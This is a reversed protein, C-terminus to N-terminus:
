LSLSKTHKSDKHYPKVDKLSHTMNNLQEQAKQELYNIEQNIHENEKLKLQHLKFHYENKAKNIVKLTDIKETLTQNELYNQFQNDNLFKKQSTLALSEILANLILHANEKLKLQIPNPAKEFSVESLISQNYTIAEHIQQIDITTKIEHVDKHENIKLEVSSLYNLLSEKDQFSMDTIWKALNKDKKNSITLAFFNNSLSFSFFNNDYKGKAYKIMHFLSNLCIVALCSAGMTTAVFLAFLALDFVHPLIPILKTINQHIYLIPSILSFLGISGALCCTSYLLYTKIIEKKTNKFFLKLDSIKKLNLNIM